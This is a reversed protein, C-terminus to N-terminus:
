ASRPVGHILRLATRRCPGYGDSAEHRRKRSWSRDNFVGLHGGIGSATRMDARAILRGPKPPKDRKTRGAGSLYYPTADRAGPAPARLPRARTLPATQYGFLLVRHSAAHWTSIEQENGSWGVNRVAHLPGHHHRHFIM